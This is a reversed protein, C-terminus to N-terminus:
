ILVLEVPVRWSGRMRCCRVGCAASQMLHPALVSTLSPTRGHCSRWLSRAVATAASAAPVVEPPPAVLVVSPPPCSGSLLPAHRRM